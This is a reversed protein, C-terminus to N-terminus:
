GLGTTLRTWFGEYIQLVEPELKTIRDSRAIMSETPELAKIAKLDDPLMSKAIKNTTGFSNADSIKAAVEPKMVYNIWAHAGEINSAGRPIAMTDTWISTGSSPLIYKINPDQRALGIADGSFAMCMMLDGSALPDRWADTTFNAIAPMLERLKQFAQEINEKEKTNYSNGLTHLAMGLVERYDNVLSIRLKSKHEWLYSWDTPEEGIISNVAKVNYALGTTGLSVPISFIAGRDHPLELYKSAINSINPLLKKNLPSLLKLDRMQTVMYDSPYIVSYGSRGGSAELKALMVENSDYADGVVKIGTEKTFGELVEQNNIYTSWGYIYLTQKDQTVPRVVEDKGSETDQPKQIFINCASLTSAGALASSVYATQRLFKRRSISM